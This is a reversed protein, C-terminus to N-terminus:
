RLSEASSLKRRMNRLSFVMYTIVLVLVAVVGMFFPSSVVTMGTAAPFVLCRGDLCGNACAEISYDSGDGNCTFLSDGTCYAESPACKVGSLAPSCDNCNEENEGKGVDCVGNGDCHRVFDIQVPVPEATVAFVGELSPSSLARYHLFFADESFKVAPISKWGTTVNQFIFLSLTGLDANNEEIWAKSIRFDMVVDTPKSVLKPALVQFYEYVWSENSTLQYVSLTFRGTQGAAGFNIKELSLGNGAIRVDYVGSAAPEISGTFSQASVMAAFLLASIM